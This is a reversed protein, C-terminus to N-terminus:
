FWSEEQPIENLKANGYVMSKQAENLISEIAMGGTEVDSLCLQLVLNLNMGAILHVNADACLPLLATNVSGGWLDTLIVTLEGPWSKIMGEVKTKLLEPQMGSVLSLPILETQDGVIMRATDAMGEALRGHSALILRKM